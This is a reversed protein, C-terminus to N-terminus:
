ASLAQQLRKQLAQHLQWNAQRDTVVEILTHRHAVQAARYHAFFEASDGARAYTMGFAAAIEGFHFGHPTGFYPEFVDTAQRIPLFSFIGGGQNNVVVLTLPYPLERLLTLSSLDHLCALDGILLTVPGQRGAAVGTATAINGDIGSAGRNTMVPTAPGDAPAFMDLDRIPMSNGVFLASGPPIHRSVLRAVAIENLAGDEAVFTALAQAVLASRQRWFALWAPDAQPQLRDQLAPWLAALHAELRLGGVHQPDYREPFDAITIPHATSARGVWELARKSVLPGGLHLITEPSPAPNLLVQDFFPIFPSEASDLRLGSALDPWTPWQLALCLARAAQREAADALRGVVIVGRQTRNLVAALAALASPDPLLQPASYRTFPETGALWPALPQLYAANVVSPTPALPERFMCNLHVPGAPARCAQHWAQDITTLWMAAPIEPTPCPVDFRWRVYPTFLDPQHITQNAGTARLEPPRDASCILMPVHDMAAEIVAPLYNAAATGSTCILVAPRGTARAYGLAHFAAGREDYAVIRRAQPQRAAAVTLPTSRSGPSLCFYDAGQRVCEAVLLAAWVANMGQDLPITQTPPM